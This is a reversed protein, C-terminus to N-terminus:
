GLLLSWALRLGRDAGGAIRRVHVRPPREGRGNAVFKAAVLTTWSGYSVMSHVLLPNAEVSPSFRAVGLSTLISNALQVAIFLALALCAHTRSNPLTAEIRLVQQARDADM